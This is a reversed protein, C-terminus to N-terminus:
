SVHTGVKMKKLIGSSIPPTIPAIIKYIKRSTERASKASKTLIQSSLSCAKDEDFKLKLVGFIM